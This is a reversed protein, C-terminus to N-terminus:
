KSLRGKAKWRITPVTCTATSPESLEIQGSARNGKVIGDLKLLQGSKSFRGTASFDEGAGLTVPSNFIRSNNELQSGNACQAVSGFAIGYITSPSCPAGATTVGKCRAPDKPLILLFMALHQGTSGGYLWIDSSQRRLHEAFGATPNIICTLAIAAAVVLWLSPYRRRGMVQLLTSLATGTRSSGRSGVRQPAM